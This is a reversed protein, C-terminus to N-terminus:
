SSVVSVQKEFCLRAAEIHNEVDDISLNASEAIEAATYGQTFAVYVRSWFMSPM